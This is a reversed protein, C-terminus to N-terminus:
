CFQVGVHCGDFSSGYRQCTCHVVRCLAFRRYKGDAAFWFKLMTDEEPEEDLFHLCMGQPSVDVVRVDNEVTTGDADEVDVSIGDCPTRQTERQGISVEPFDLGKFSNETTGSLLFQELEHYTAQDNDTMTNM